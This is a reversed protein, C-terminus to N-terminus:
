GQFPWDNPYIGGDVQCLTAARNRQTQLEVAVSPDGPDTVALNNMEWPDAEEDYLGEKVPEEFKNHRVYLWHASRVGCYTPPWQSTPPSQFWHELVFDSRGSTLMDRGEFAHGFAVGSIRELTPAVDVNLVIRADCSTAFGYMSPCPDNGVPLPAQLNKGVLMIPVRLSENYPVLKSAWKHEGWTYGNDSMFLVVSNDPLASWIQGISRDVGYTSNLQRRHFTNVQKVRTPDWTLDSIYAPAGAEAKGFSRPQVYGKVDFRGVDRPDPIAPGHPATTAYYLFFPEASSNQIFGTARTTLVRTIYDASTRGFFRNRVVASGAGKTAAWYSYYVGTPVAFWRDWGPPAYKSKASSYGNLYKGILATRYGAQQM